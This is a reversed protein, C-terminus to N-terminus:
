NSSFSTNIVLYDQYVIFVEDYLILQVQYVYDIATPVGNSGSAGFWIYKLVVVKRALSM